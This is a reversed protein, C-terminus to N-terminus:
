ASTIHTLQHKGQFASFSKQEADFTVGSLHVCRSAAIRKENPLGAIPRLKATGIFSRKRVARHPSSRALAALAAIRPM